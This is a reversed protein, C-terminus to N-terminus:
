SATTVAVWTAAGDSNIYLRTSTSSGDTRFYMSGQSAVLTPAGSGYVFDIVQSTGLSMAIAGGATTGIGEAFYAVGDEIIAWDEAGRTVDWGKIYRGGALTADTISLNLLTGTTLGDGSIDVVGSNAAAGITTATDNYIGVSIANDNDTLLLSGQSILSDGATITFVTSGENGAIITAGYQSVSFDDAAGDYCQIYKGTLTAATANLFLLTGGIMSTASIYAVTGATTTNAIAALIGMNATSTYAGTAQVSLIGNTAVAGTSASVARILSGSTMGTGTDGVYLGIGSTLANGNLAVATGTLTSNANVRVFGDTVATSTFAGTGFFSIIGNTAIAGATASNVRLLSGSTMGTATNNTISLGVGTTTLDAATILMVTATTAASTIDIARGGTANHTIDLADGTGLSDMTVQIGVTTDSVTGSTNTIANEVYLVSGTASFTGGGNIVSTRICNVMDYDDAVTGTTVTRLSSVNFFDATKNLTGTIDSSIHSFDAIRGTTLVISTTTVDLLTGTTIADASVKVIGEGASAGPTTASDAIIELASGVGTQVGTTRLRMAAGTTGALSVDIGTALTTAADCLVYFATGTTLGSPNLTMWAATTTGTFVGSGDLSIVSVSTATNNVISVTNANDADTITLSGDSVVWDGATCTLVNSGGTGVINFAVEGFTYYSTGDIQLDLLQGGNLTGSVSHNIMVVAGSTITSSDIALGDGTTGVVTITCTETSGADIDFGSNLDLIGTGDPAIQINGNAGDFITMSGTTSNGTQLILDFNGGSTLTANSNNDGITVTSATVGFCARSTGGVMLNLSFDADETLDTVDTSRFRIRGYETKTSGDDEGNLQLEFIVDNDAPTASNHHSDWQVGTASARTTVCQFDLGTGANGIVLPIGAGANTKDINLGNIAASVTFLIQSVDVTISSGADYASDLTTGGSAVTSLNLTTSGSDFILQNSSNVYLYRHGSATTPATNVQDFRIVADRVSDRTIIDIGPFSSQKKGNKIAM